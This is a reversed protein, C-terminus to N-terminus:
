RVTIEVRRNRPEPVNEATSILLEREGRGVVTISSPPLGRLTLLKAVFSARNLSLTDNYSRGGMTDTHGTVVIESVKRQKIEDFVANFAKQGEPTLTDSESVFYLRYIKPDIPLAKLTGGFIRDVEQANTTAPKLAGSGPTAAAYATDLIAKGGNAQVVVAGVHGDAGDPIVVVLNKSACGALVLM